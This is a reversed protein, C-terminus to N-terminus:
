MQRRQSLFPPLQALMLPALERSYLSVEASTPLVTRNRVRAVFPLPDVSAVDTGVATIM